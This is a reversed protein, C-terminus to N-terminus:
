GEVVAAIEALAERVVEEDRMTRGLAVADDFAVGCRAALREVARDFEDANGPELPLAHM